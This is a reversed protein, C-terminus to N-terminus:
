QPAGWQEVSRSGNVLTFRLETEGVRAGEPIESIDLKFTFNKGDSGAIEAPLLRWQPPGEVFLHVPDFQSPVMTSILLSKSGDRTVNVVKFDETPAAPLDLKAFEIKSSTMADTTSLENITIEFQAQAPICIEECVGLLINLHIKGTSAFSSFQGEFVYMKDTKYGVFSSSGVKVYIPTPLKVEGPTFGTSGSFDLMPPIGSDGPSRWYTKWGKDLQIDLVGTVKGTDPDMVALVRARGGGIDQWPTVATFGNASWALYLGSCVMLIAIIKSWAALKSTEFHINRTLMVTVILM